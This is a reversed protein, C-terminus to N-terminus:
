KGLMYMLASGKGFPEANNILSATVEPGLDNADEDGYPNSVLFVNESFSSLKEAQSIGEATADSDTFVYFKVEKNSYWAKKFLDLQGDTIKKGFTAVGNFGVTLANFVGECIVITDYRKAINLNFVSNNKGYEDDRAPANLSKVFADKEISRSNWFIPTGSDNYTIFIISNRIDMYVDKGDVTESKRVKGNVVYHINHVNLMEMTVGRRLLYEQFPFSEPNMLNDKISKMNSPFPVHKLENEESKEDEELSTNYLSLYLSESKTLTDRVYERNYDASSTDGTASIGLESLMARADSFDVSYLNMILSTVNGSEECVWCRYSGINLEADTDTVVYFKYKRNGCFPCNYRTDLGAHKGSGLVPELLEFKLEYSEM